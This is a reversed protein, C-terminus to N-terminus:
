KEKEQKPFYKRTQLTLKNREVFATQVGGGGGGGNKIADEKGCGDKTDKKESAKGEALM